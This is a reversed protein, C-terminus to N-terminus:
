KDVEEYNCCERTKWVPDFCEPYCFWGKRLGLKNGEMNPDPEVCRIHCNGPVLRKHQCCYCENLKTRKVRM